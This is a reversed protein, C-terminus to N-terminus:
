HVKQTITTSSTEELTEKSAFRYMQFRITLVVTGASKASKANYELIAVNRGKQRGFEM